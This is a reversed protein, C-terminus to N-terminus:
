VSSKENDVAVASEIKKYLFGLRKVDSKFKGIEEENRLIRSELRTICQLIEQATQTTGFDSGQLIGTDVVVNHGTLNQIEEMERGSLIDGVYIPM